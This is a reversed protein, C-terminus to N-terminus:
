GALAGLFAKVGSAVVLPPAVYFAAHPSYEKRMLGLDEYLFKISQINTDPAAVMAIRQDSIAIAEFRAALRVLIESLTQGDRHDKHVYIGDIVIAIREIGAGGDTSASAKISEWGNNLEVIPALFFAAGAIVRGAGNRSVVLTVKGEDYLRGIQLVEQRIQRPLDHDGLILEAFETFLRFDPM